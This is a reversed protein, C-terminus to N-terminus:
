RGREHPFTSAPYPLSGQPSPRLTRRYSDECLQQRDGHNTLFGVEILVAPCNAYKLVYWEHSMVGRDKTQLGRRLSHLIDGALFGSEYRCQEYMVSFLSRVFDPDVDDDSCRRRRRCGGGRASCSGKESTM